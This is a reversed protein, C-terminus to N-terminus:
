QTREVELHILNGVSKTQEIVALTVHQGSEADEIRGQKEIQRYTTEAGDETEVRYSLEFLAKWRYIM